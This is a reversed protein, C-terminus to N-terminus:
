LVNMVTIVLMDADDFAIIIRIPSRNLTEGRIAYKWKKFGEDFKTKQKEHWGFRLTHLIDPLQIDRQFQRELAHISLRYRGSDIHARISEFLNDIQAPRNKVM